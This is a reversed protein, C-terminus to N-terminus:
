CSNRDCQRTQMLRCESRFSIIFDSFSVRSIFTHTAASKFDLATSHIIIQGENICKHFLWGHPKPDVAFAAKDSSPLPSFLWVSLLLFISSEDSVIMDYSLTHVSLTFVSNYSEENWNPLKTNQGLWKTKNSTSCLCRKLLTFGRGPIFSHIAWELTIM